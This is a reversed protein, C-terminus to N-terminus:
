TCPTEKKIQKRLNATIWPSKYCNRCVKQLIHKAVLNTLSDQFQKWMSNVDLHSVSINNNCMEDMVPQLSACIANSDAKKYLLISRKTQKHISPKINTKIVHESLGPLTSVNMVHNHCNTFFPRSYTQGM